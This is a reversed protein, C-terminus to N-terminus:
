DEFYSYYITKKATNISLSIIIDDISFNASYDFNNKIGLHSYDIMDFRDLEIENLFNEFDQSNFVIDFMVLEEGIGYGYEVNKIKCDYEKLNIELIKEIYKIDRDYNYSCSLCLFTIIILLGKKM